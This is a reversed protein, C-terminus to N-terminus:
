RCRVGPGSFVQPCPPLRGGARAARVVADAATVVAAPQSGPVDHDSRLAVVHLSDSSLATLEDQTRTWVRRLGRALKPPRRPFNPHRGATVVVLPMDGVTTIRNAEAEGVSLDVGLMKTTALEPRVDPAQTRPWIALQRRRAYPGATDVLVLGVTDAPYRHAFVRALVGGYSHGVLVYPPVLHAHDLLRRLDALEDRADRTGPPAVSNGTGARDYACTRTLRAVGPQVRRWGFSGTAFGAELVVTPSGSGVCHLFLSRGGGIPVQGNAPEAARRASGRCGAALCCVVLVLLTRERMAFSAM